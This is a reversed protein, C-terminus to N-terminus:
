GARLVMGTVAARNPVGLKRLIRSVHTKATGPAILLQEAIQANGYGRILLALVERERDTLNCLLDRRDAVISTEPLKASAQRDAPDRAIAVTAGDVATAIAEVARLTATTQAQQERLREFLQEREHIRGFGEAFIWLLDRDVIDAMTGDGHDAYFFGVVRGAASIPAVVYSASRMLQNMPGANTEAQRVLTPRCRQLASAEVPTSALPLDLVESLARFAKEFRADGPASFRLPRLCDGDVRSLVVRAFGCSRAAEQCAVNVLGRSSGVEYLRNLGQIVRLRLDQQSEFAREQLEAVLAQADVALRLLEDPQTTTVNRRAEMADLAVAVLRGLTDRPDADPAQILSDHPGLLEHARGVLATIQWTPRQDCRNVRAGSM